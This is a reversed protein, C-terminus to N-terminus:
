LTATRLGQLRPSGVPDVVLSYDFVRNMEARMAPFPDIYRQVSTTGTEIKKIEQAM